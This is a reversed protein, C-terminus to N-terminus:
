SARSAQTERDCLANWPIDSSAIVRVSHSACAAENTNGHTLPPLASGPDFADGARASRPRLRMAGPANGPDERPVLRGPASTGVCNIRRRTLSVPLPLTEVQERLLPDPSM